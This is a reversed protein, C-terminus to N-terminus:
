EQPKGRKVVPDRTKDLIENLLGLAAEQTMAERKDPDFQGLLQKGLWILMTANGEYAAKIQMRRFSPKAMSTFKKYCESYNAKYHRTCWADITEHASGMTADIEDHTCYLKCLDEFTKPDFDKTKRGRTPKPRIRVWNPNKALKEGLIRARM